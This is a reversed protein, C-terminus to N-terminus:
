VPLGVARMLELANSHTVIGPRLKYDFVMGGDTIQDEFHANAAQPGLDKEIDALALDHTTISGIAGRQVLTKVVAAAGQRRDHSNTGSLLEDLLFLVPTGKETLELIYRLRTIEAFFRSRNDQLSDAVRISAGVQLHSVRLGFAAVPGGAWALVANLGIARLLTSKGSMNSGSIILLSLGNGIRVDNPVCKAGPILPHQLGAGDFLSGGSQELIPFTWGPREYALSALSSLAEFDGVAALWDAVYKGNECRWRDVAFACQEKWMVLPRIARVLAHDSSDVWDMRRALRAIRKSAPMGDTVLAARITQLGPADFREGEIRRLLLSLIELDKSARELGEFVREV